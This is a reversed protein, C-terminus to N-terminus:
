APAVVMTEDAGRGSAQDAAMFGLLPLPFLLTILLLFPAGPRKRHDCRWDPYHKSPEVYVPFLFREPMKRMTPKRVSFM